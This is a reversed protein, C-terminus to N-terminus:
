LLDSIDLEGSPKDLAAATSAPVPIPKTKAAKGKAQTAAEKALFESRRRRLERVLSILQDQPLERPDSSFIDEISVTTLPSIDTM